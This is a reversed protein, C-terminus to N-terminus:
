YINKVLAINGDYVIGKKALKSGGTKKNAKRKPGASTGPNAAENLPEDDLFYCLGNKVIATDLVTDASIRFLIFIGDSTDKSSSKDEEEDSDDSLCPLPANGKSSNVTAM